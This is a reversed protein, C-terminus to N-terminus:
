LEANFGIYGNSNTNFLFYTRYQTLGSAVTPNVFGTNYSTQGGNLTLGTVATITGTDYVSLSAFDVSTPVFRMQVPLPVAISTGTTAYAMGVGHTGNAPGVPTRWYYRQCAALEGQLTAGNTRFPLPVSGVDVQVGTIEFFDAAGATGTPTYFAQLNLQTANSAMTATSSFRQWTTTLTATVGLFVSAGTFGSIPSQDTGTGSLGYVTLNSTAESFNAGKRAYFSVTITKGAFPISNVSEFTNNIQLNVTSTDGATRQVRACYQIFPLNTTDGTVQRSVVQNTANRYALWRDATYTPTGSAVTFSTGRQWIQM